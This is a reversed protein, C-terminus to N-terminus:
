RLVVNPFQTVKGARIRNIWQRGGSNGNAITVDPMGGPLPTGSVTGNNTVTATPPFIINGPNNVNSGSGVALNGSVTVTGATPINITSSGQVTVNNFVVMGAVTLNLWYPPIFVVNGTGANFAGGSKVEMIGAVSNCNNIAANMTLTYTGANVTGGSEIQLTSISYNGNLNWVAGSLVDMGGLTITGNNTISTFTSPLVFCAQNGNFTAGSSVTLTKKIYRSGNQLTLNGGVIAINPPVTNGNGTPWDYDNGNITATCNLELTGNSGYVPYGGTLLTNNLRLIGNM